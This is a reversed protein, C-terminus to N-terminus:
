RVLYISGREDNILLLLFLRVIIFKHKQNIILLRNIKNM